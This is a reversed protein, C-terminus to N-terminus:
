IVVENMVLVIIIVFFLPFLSMELHIKIVNPDYPNSYTDGMTFSVEFLDFLNVSSPFSPSIITPQAYSRLFVFAFVLTFLFRKM